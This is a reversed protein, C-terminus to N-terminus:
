PPLSRADMRMEEASVMATPPESIRIKRELPSSMSRSLKATTVSPQSIMEARPARGNKMEPWIGEKVSAKKSLMDPNVVVPAEMRTRTSSRGRPRSNQRLRLWQSPPMPMMTRERAMRGMVPMPPVWNYLASIGPGVGSLIVGRMRWVALVSQFTYRSSVSRSVRSSIM